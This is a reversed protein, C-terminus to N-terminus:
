FTALPRIVFRPRRSCLRQPAGRMLRTRIAGRGEDLDAEAIALAEGIRLGARWLVVSVARLREGDSTQPATFVPRIAILCRVSAPRKQVTDVLQDLDSIFQEVTMSSRPIASDFSKGAGRQDWYVATFSKELPANFHRFFSTESWGPGGHLL